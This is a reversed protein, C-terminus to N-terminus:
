LFPHADFSVNRIHLSGWTARSSPGPARCHGGGARMSPAQGPLKRVPPFSLSWGPKHLQSALQKEKCFPLSPKPPETAPPPPSYPTVMTVSLSCGAPSEPGFRSAGTPGPDAQAQSPALRLFGDTPGGTGLPHSNMQGDTQGQTCPQLHEPPSQQLDDSCLSLSAHLAGEGSGPTM